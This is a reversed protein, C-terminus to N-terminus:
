PDRDDDYQSDRGRGEIFNDDLGPVCVLNGLVRPVMGQQYNLYLSVLVHSYGALKITRALHFHPHVGYKLPVNKYGRHPCRHFSASQTQINLSIILKKFLPM